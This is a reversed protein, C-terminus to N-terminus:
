KVVIKKGNNIYLGKRPASVRRGQLDFLNDDGTTKAVSIGTVEGGGLHIEFRNEITGAEAEFTYGQEDLVVDANTQLDKLRVEENANAAVAM